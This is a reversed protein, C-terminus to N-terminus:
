ILKNAKELNQKTFWHIASKSPIKEVGLFHQITVNALGILERYSTTYVIMIILLKFYLTTDYRQTKVSSFTKEIVDKLEGEILPKIQM